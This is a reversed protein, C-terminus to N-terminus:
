RCERSKLVAVYDKAATITGDDFACRLADTMEMGGAKHAQVASAAWGLCTLEREWVAPPRAPVDNRAPTGKEVLGILFDTAQADDTLDLAHEPPTCRNGRCVCSLLHRTRLVQQAKIGNPTVPGRSRALADLRDRLTLKRELQQCDSGLLADDTKFLPRCEPAAQLEAVLARCSAAPVVADDECTKEERGVAPLTQLRVSAQGDPDPGVTLLAAEQPPDITSGVVLERVYRRKRVCHHAAKAAHTHASVLALVRPPLDRAREEEVSDEDGLVSATPDAAGDLRAILDAINRHGDSTTEDFPHHGFVLYLPEDYPNAGSARHKAQQLDHVMGVIADGQARSFTGFLGAIGFDFDIEDATDIFVGVLGRQQKLHTVVGLPSVMALAGGRGTFGGLQGLQKWAGGKVSQMQSGSVLRGAALGKIKDDSDVKELRSVCASDWFPSWFFNGTFSKDHNGPALGALPGIESFRTLLNTARDMEGACSLDAFDGLHAWLVQKGVKAAQAAIGAYVSRFRWVTAASLLDLEVPRLAVPVFADALEAQGPFRKGQLEHFQTDSVIFLSLEPVTPGGPERVCVDRRDPPGFGGGGGLMDDYARRRQWAFAVAGVMALTVAGAVLTDLRRPWGMQQERYAQRLALQPSTERLAKQRRRHRVYRPILGGFAIALMVPILKRWQSWALSWLAILGLVTAGYIVPRRAWNLEGGAKSTGPKVLWTRAVGNIIPPGLLVVATLLPLQVMLRPYAVTAVALGAAYAEMHGLQRNLFTVVHHVRWLARSERSEEPNRLPLAIWLLALGLNVALIVGWNSAVLSVGVLAGYDLGWALQRGVGTDGWLLGIALAAVVALVRLWWPLTFSVLGKPDDDARPDPGVLFIGALLQFVQDYRSRGTFTNLPMPRTPGEIEDVIEDTEDDVTNESDPQAAHQAEDAMPTEGNLHEPPGDTRSM